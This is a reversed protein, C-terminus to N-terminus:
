TKPAQTKLNIHGYKAEQIIEEEQKTNKKTHTYNKQTTTTTRAKQPIINYYKEM